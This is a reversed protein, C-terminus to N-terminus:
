SRGGINLTSSMWAPSYSMLITIALVILMLLPIPRFVFDPGYLALSQSFATDVIPGLILAIVILIRPYSYRWMLYGLAGFIFALYIDFLNSRFSFTGLIAILMVLGATPTTPLFTIKTFQQSLIIGILSTIINSAILGFIITMTIHLNDVLMDAGPYLGNFTMGALFFVQAGSGPIGFTITPIIAGGDKADNAAEPAIIGESIGTGWRDPNDSLSRGQSYALLNSLTGGVGPVLGVIWGITASLIVLKWNKFVDVAGTIANSKSRISTNSGVVTEKHLVLKAGEGIAYLGVAVPVISIGSVLIPLDFTFRDVGTIGHVGVMGLTLGVLLAITGKVPRRRGSFGIIFLGVLAITFIEPPGFLLVIKRLVPLLIILLLLGLIAGTASAVASIGIARNAEGQEALKHGDWTTAINAPGGPINLTIAPLSGGFNGGGLTSAILLFGEVPSLVFTLPLVLVMAILGGFGPLAGFFLGFLTGAIIILISKPSLLGEQISRLIAEFVPQYEQELLFPVSQLHFLQSLEVLGM